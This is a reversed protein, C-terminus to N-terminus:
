EQLTLLQDVEVQTPNIRGIESGYIEKYKEFTGEQLVTIKLPDHGLLDHVDNYDQDLGKMRKNIRDYLTQEVLKDPNELYLRLYASNEGLEKTATWFKPSIKEIKLADGVLQKSIRTFGSLDIINHVRDLYIVQPLAINDEKNELSVCKMIDGIRYRVFAGGKLKTIVLEYIQNAELENFLVTRPIYGEENNEKQLESEPIFELFNVDPFFTLGNRSWTETAVAASETGGFIEIPKIGYYHEIKAKYTNSDTGGCVIGKFEFLDKPLLEQKKIKKKWWAKMYKAAQKPNGPFPLKSSSNSSDAYSEGIKVLVSSLGFFLDAGHKMALKFGEKNRERFSLQEARQTSPLYEFDILDKLIYPAFGTLYPLPAMGYLFRDFNRLDFEGRKKSTSLILSSMFMKTHEEVMTASYPALKIPQQGGKWTTQVWHLPVSPLEDVRKNLLTDAYDEYKTLPVKKRFDDMNSIKQSGLIGKGLKCRKLLHIQELLLREQIDMFEDISLDLFGMYAEWVGKYDEDRLMERLNRMKEEM